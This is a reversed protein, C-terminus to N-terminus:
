HLQDLVLDHGEVGRIGVHANVVAGGLAVGQKIQDGCSVLIPGVLHAM